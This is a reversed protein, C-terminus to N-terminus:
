GYPLDALILNVSETDLLPLLKLCDGQIMADPVIKGISLTEQETM